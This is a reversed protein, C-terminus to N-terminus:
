YDKLHDMWEPWDAHTVGGARTWESATNFNKHWKLMWLEKCGLKRVSWDLFIANTGGDHRDICYRTMSNGMFDFFDPPTDHEGPWGDLWM